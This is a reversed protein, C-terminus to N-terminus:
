IFNKIKKFIYDIDKLTMKYHLPLSLVNNFYSEAGVLRHKKKYFYNHYHIPIYHVQTQINNKKLHEYIELKSKKILDFDFIIPYLHWCKSSRSDLVKLTRIKPRLSRFKNNYYNVLKMRKNKFKDLQSLQSTGLACAVDSLRFNYGLQDISYYWPLKSIKKIYSKKSNSRNIGHSRLSNFNEILQKSNTSIAGGEGTTISKVPHFSFSECFAHKACGVRYKKNEYIYESGIAHCADIILKIKQIKLFKYLKEIDVCQGNLHVAVVAKIKDKKKHNNILHKLYEVNLLGNEPDVETLLIQAGNLRFASASAVFTLSPVIVIDNKSLNLSKAILFLASTGSNCVSVYKSKFYKSLKKEFNKVHEGGTLYGSDLVNKVINKDKLSLHPFGYNLM